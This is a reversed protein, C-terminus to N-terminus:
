MLDSQHLIITHIAAYEMHLDDIFFCWLDFCAWRAINVNRQVLWGVNDSPRFRRELIVNTNHFGEVVNLVVDRSWLLHIIDVISCSVRRSVLSSATEKDM